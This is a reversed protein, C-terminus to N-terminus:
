RVCCGNAGRASSVCDERRLWAARGASVRASGSCVVPGHCTPVGDRQYAGVDEAARSLRAATSPLGIEAFHALMTVLRGYEAFLEDPALLALAGPRAEAPLDEVARYHQDSTLFVPRTAYADKSWLMPPDIVGRM